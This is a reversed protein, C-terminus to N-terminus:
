QGEKRVITGDKQMTWEEAKLGLEAIRQWFIREAELDANDLRLNLNEIREIAQKAVAYVKNYDGFTELEAIAAKAAATLKDWTPQLGAPLPYSLPAETALIAQMGTATLEGGIPEGGPFTVVNPNTVNDM